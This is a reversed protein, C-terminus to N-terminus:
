SSVNGNPVNPYSSKIIDISDWKLCQPCKWVLEDPRYGCNSCQFKLNPYHLITLLDKYAELAEENRGEKLLIEGLFQRANLFSPVSKIAQNLEDLASETEGENYLYKALALQIFSDSNKRASERLFDEVGKLNKMMSYAKELRQYVLFTFQPAVDVVRKWTSLAKKHEQQSFYLDGLHLYIDVCKDFISIAKKYSKEANAIDGNKEQIKGLETKQHALIHRHNGKILKSISQRTKFAKEWDYMDEYIREIQELAEINNPDDEFVEQFASIARNLFGGKRYDLGLDFIARLRVEKDLNPRLIIGQRIRIAREIDGKSRYLHGLAVYTEITDSNIKVSKTFQEIAQDPKNSLIHQIGQFFAKDGRDLKKRLKEARRLRIFKDILFGCVFAIILWVVFRIDLNSFFLNKIEEWMNFVVWDKGM